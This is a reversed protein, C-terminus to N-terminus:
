VQGKIWLIYRLVVREREKKAGDKDSGSHIIWSEYFADMSKKCQWKSDPSTQSKSHLAM